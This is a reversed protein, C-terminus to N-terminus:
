RALPLAASVILERLRRYPETELRMQLRRPSIGAQTVSPAHTPDLVLRPLIRLRRRDQGGEVVRPEGVVEGVGAVLGTGAACYVVLDGVNQLTPVSSAELTVAMRDMVRQWDRDLDDDGVAGLWAWPEDGTRAEGEPAASDAHDDLATPAPAVLAGRSDVLPVAASLVLERLRRYGDAGLRMQPEPARMGADSISPARTRDLVVRPIVTLRSQGSSGEVAESTGAIEAVGALVGTAVGCYVVLDGVRQSAHASGPGLTVAM